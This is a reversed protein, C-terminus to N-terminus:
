AKIWKGEVEVFFEGNIKKYVGDTHFILDANEHDEDFTCAAWRCNGMDSKLLEDITTPRNVQTSTPQINLAGCTPYLCYMPITEGSKFTRQYAEDLPEWNEIAVGLDDTIVAGDKSFFTISTGEPVVTSKSTNVSGHGAFVVVRKSKGEGEKCVLGLPDVWNVHNPAYQYHNIGGLLGIPDQSIFRGTQPDYYRFHNYHLGSENDFYQGQFRLPNDIENVTVTAKGFVSYQAQWVINNKDDTLSLPTGLQDLQYFYVAGNKLLLLPKTSGPEYVYWLYEGAQYEGILKDGDWYYETREGGSIKASRRGFADYEYRSIAGNCSISSLQNFGNFERQQASSGAVATLQNGSDDYQYQKGQYRLLRDQKVEIGEGIPNGFSDWQHTENQSLDTSHQKSVLQDLANYQYETNGLQNDTVTQLQHLVSYAYHRQQSQEGRQWHQATLRNFADFQQQLLLGSQCERATERGASDFTRWLMPQQNVALQALQGEENYRYDLTTGDPLVTASCKGQSNYHHAICNNDQWIETLQGNLHYSFRLKRQGNSARLVRGIKDYYFHNSALSQGHLATQETIRGRKDRKIKLQRKSGDQVAAVKGNIDYQFQQQRGDFGQLRVPREQADYDLQYRAGDSRMIATLNRENDYEYHFASGDPQLVSVPQSLGAYQREIIDGNANTTSQLRGSSDYSFHQELRQATKDQASDASSEDPYQSQQLLKGALNYRYETVLGSADVVGNLRGLSDYSYRTLADNHKVALLQSEDSWMLRQIGGGPLSVRELQNNSNYQYRTVTNDPETESLLLGAASYERRWQRGEADIIVSRQGLENYQLHSIAGDAQELTVLQGNDNYYFRSKSGDPMTETTKKGQKNWSYHWTAGDPAVKKLLLNRVDHFYQWCHGNSDISCASRNNDDFSFRYDYIGNDGWNRVCRATQKAGQWSFYHCFGSARQRVTILHQSYQYQETESGSNVASILDNADNYQYKALVVETAKAGKDTLSVAEIRSLLGASNYHLEVGKKRTYDIRSLQNKPNYYLQLYRGLSDMVQHLQWRTIKDTTVDGAAKAFIWHTNDPKLLILSGNAEFRLALEEALQYSTQGAEPKAFHLHRGEENVLVLSVKGAEDTISDIYLNFNSRWGYGLGINQHSQSSRYTRVWQMLLPGALEFDTLTLIEEGTSMSVPDGCTEVKTNEPTQQGAANAGSQASVASKADTYSASDATKGGRELTKVAAPPPTVSEPASLATKREPLSFILLKNNLLATALTRCLEADRVASWPVAINKTAIESCFWQYVHRISDSQSANRDFSQRLWSTAAARSAFQLPTGNQGTSETCFVYMNGSRSKLILSHAAM